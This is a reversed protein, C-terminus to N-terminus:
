KKFKKLIPEQALMYDEYLHYSSENVKFKTFKSLMSLIAEKNSYILNFPLELLRNHPELEENTQFIFKKNYDILGNLIYDPLNHLNEIKELEDLNDYERLYNFKDEELVREVEFKKYIFNSSILHKDDENFTIYIVYVNQNELLKKITSPKSYHITTLHFNFLRERPTLHKAYSNSPNSIADLIIKVNGNTEPYIPRGLVSYAYDYSLRMGGSMYDCSGHSTIKGHDNYYNPNAMTRILSGIFNGCSGPVYCIMYHPKKKNYVYIAM